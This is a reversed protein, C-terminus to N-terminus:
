LASLHAYSLKIIRVTVSNASICCVDTIMFLDLCYLDKFPASLADSCQCLKSMQRDGYSIAEALPSWGQANKIKVPANHALLLLACESLFVFLVFFIFLLVQYCCSNLFTWSFLICIYWKLWCWCYEFCCGRCHFLWYFRVIIYMHLLPWTICASCLLNISAGRIIGFTRWYLWM